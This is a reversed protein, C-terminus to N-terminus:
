DGTGKVRFDISNLLHGSDVLPKTSVGSPVEGRALRAAAEGVTKGTVVLNPDEARMQRLMLTVASLPPEFTDVISEQLEGKIEAGMNALVMAGDYDHQKLLAAVDKPWHPSEKKIMGRFYPRPPISANPAGYEQIAAVKAVLTGDPYTANELFGVEVTSAKSVNRAIDDLAGKLSGGGTVKM